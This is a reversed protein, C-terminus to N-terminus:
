YQTIRVAISRRGVFMYYIYLIFISHIFNIYQIYIYIHIHRNVTHKSTNYIFKRYISKFDDGRGM